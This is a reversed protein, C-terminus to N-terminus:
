KIVVVVVVELMHLAQVLFAQHREMVAMAAQKLRALVVLQAQEVAAEVEAVLVLVALAVMAVKHHRRLLRIELEARVLRTDVAVVLVVLLV